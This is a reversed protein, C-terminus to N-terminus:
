SPWTKSCRKAATASPLRRSRVVKLAGRLKILSWLRSAEAEVDEAVILLSRGGQATQQLLPFIDHM